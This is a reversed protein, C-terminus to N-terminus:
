TFNRRRSTGRGSTERVLEAWDNHAEHNAATTGKYGAVCLIITLLTLSPGVLVLMAIGVISADIDSPNPACTM